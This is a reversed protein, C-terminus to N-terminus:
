FFFPFVPLLLQDFLVVRMWVEDGPVEFGERAVRVRSEGPADVNHLDLQVGQEGCRADDAGPAYEVHARGDVPLDHLPLHFAAHQLADTVGGHFFHFAHVARGVLVAKRVVDDGRGHIGDIEMGAHHIIRVLVAREAGLARALERQDARRRGIDGRHFVGRAGIEVLDGETGSEISKGDRFLAQVTTEERLSEYGTFVTAALDRDIETKTEGSGKWAAQARHRQEEMAQEFSPEDYSLGSERLIEMTLDAPFGYTDYLKFAERGDLATRGSEKMQRVTEDLMSLGRELTTRFTQEESEAVKRTFDLNEILDPYQNRMVEAAVEMEPVLTSGLMAVSAISTGTLTSLLTGAAVALLSLRGPIRGMWKGIVEILTPAIGSQFMIDGMLIFLPIPLLIFSNLSAYVSDILNELGLVGGFFFYMGFINILFFCLVIPMGTLMLVILIGFIILLWLQWEM